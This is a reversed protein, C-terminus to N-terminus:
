ERDKELMRSSFPGFGTECLSSDERLGAVKIEMTMLLQPLHLSTVDGLYHASSM